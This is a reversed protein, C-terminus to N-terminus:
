PFSIKHLKGALLGRFQELTTPRDPFLYRKTVADQKVEICGKEIMGYLWHKTVCLAQALQAVSLHRDLRRPSSPSERRLLRHKFRFCTVTSVLVSTHRPSRHGAATLQAAIEEDTHGGAFLERILQGIQEASSLETFSLVKIPVHLTSTEGGKWVIRAQVVDRKARHAVVKDILCRLLAKRQQQSLVQTNWVQPLQQGIQSFAAKLETTLTFPMVSRTQEEAAAEEAQKFERLAAEWRAELEAAVLRNDPDCRNYQRQVLAAQYQLRELQQARAREAGKQSEKHAALARGFVDLEVPSLALFFAEVVAADVADAPIHQCVPVLYKRRLGNCIYLVGGKYRVVMKLGCEGCYVLGHLLAKGARPVGRTKNRDYETYNDTLMQRIKIFTEWEVYAPYKDKIIIKWETIPLRQQQKRTPAGQQSVRRTRGYVFAGAYAPNNLITTIAYITPQKWVIDGFRDRRPLTLDHHTFYRLVKGAVHLQLFTTFVLELRSQVQTDPDKQVRGLDDRVLGVPLQMALDGREAKNLLGATMRARITFLEAESITGKLGLLLRGNPTAPDYVGDRDAILCQKLGCIDLLPYWDSCNRSLRTVDMSLIIGVLGLTVKAVLQKFGERHQAAAGTLGLDSDIVDIDHDGWGLAVARQRLAYQLSLSEQNTLVQHPTSQRIYIM